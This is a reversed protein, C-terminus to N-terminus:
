LEGRMFAECTALFRDTDKKMWFVPPDCYAAQWEPSRHLEPEWAPLDGCFPCQEAPYGHACTM